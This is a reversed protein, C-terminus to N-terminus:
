WDTSGFAPGWWPGAAQGLQDHEREVCDTSPAIGPRFGQITCRQEDARRIQYPSESQCGSLFWPISAALLMVALMTRKREVNQAM